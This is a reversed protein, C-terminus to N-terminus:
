RLATTSSQLTSLHSKIKMQHSHVWDRRFCTSWSTLMAELLLWILVHSNEERGPKSISNLGRTLRASSSSIKNGNLLVWYMIAKWPPKIEDVEKTEFNGDLFQTIEEKEDDPSVYPDINAPNLPFFVESKLIQFVIANHEKSITDMLATDNDEDRATIYEFEKQIDNLGVATDLLFQCTEAHGNYCAVHLSTRGSGSKSTLEAGKARLDKLMDLHGNNAAFHWATNGQNDKAKINAGSSLLLQVIPLHGKYAALTLATDGESSEMELLSKDKKLLRKVVDLCNNYASFHLATNDGTSKAQIKAGSSIVTEVISDYDYTAAYHLSTRDFNDTANVNAGKGLLFTVVEPHGNRAAAGLPRRGEFDPAELDAANETFLVEVVKQRGSWAAVFLVTAERDTTTASKNAGRGLLLQVIEDHGLDAALLLPTVGSDEGWGEYFTHSIKAELPAGEDLLKTIRHIDNDKIATHLKHEMNNQHEDDNQDSPLDEQTNAEPDNQSSERSPSPPPSGAQAGVDQTLVTM